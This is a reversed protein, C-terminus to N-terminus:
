INSFVLILLIKIIIIIIIKNFYIAINFTITLLIIIENLEFLNFM